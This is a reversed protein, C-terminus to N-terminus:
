APYSSQPTSSLCSRPLQVRLPQLRANGAAAVRPANEGFIFRYERIGRIPVKIVRDPAKTLIAEEAIIDALNSRIAKRVKQRHRLRDGASRDSRLGESTSYPRFVTKM